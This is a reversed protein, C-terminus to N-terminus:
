NAWAFLSKNKWLNTMNLLIRCLAFCLSKVKVGQLNITWFGELQDLPSWFSKVHVFWELKGHRTKSHAQLIEASTMGFIWFLLLALFFFDELLCGANFFIALSPVAQALNIILCCCPRLPYHEWGVALSSRLSRPVSCLSAPSEDLAQNAHHLLHIMCSILFVHNRPM